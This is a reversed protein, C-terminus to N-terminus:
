ICCSGDAVVTEDAVPHVTEFSVHLAEHVAQQRGHGEDDERGQEQHAVDRHLTLVAPRGDELLLADAAEATREIDVLEAAHAQIGLLEARGQVLATRVGAQGLHALEQAFVVQVLQGLQPVHEDALHGEDARARFALEVDVLDHLAIGAIAVEVLDTRTDRGVGRQVVAVRVGELLHQAAQAVVQEVQLVAGPQEVELYQYHREGAGTEDLQQLMVDTGDKPLLVAVAIGHVEVAEAGPPHGEFTGGELEGEAAGTCADKREAQLIDGTRDQRGTDGRVHQGTAIGTLLVQHEM